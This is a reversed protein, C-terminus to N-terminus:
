HVSICFSIYDELNRGSYGVVSGLKQMQMVLCVIIYLIVKGFLFLLIWRFKLAYFFLTRIAIKQDGCAPLLIYGKWNRDLDGAIINYGWNKYEGHSLM